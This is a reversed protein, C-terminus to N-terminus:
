RWERLEKNNQKREKKSNLSDLRKRQKDEFRNDKPKAM